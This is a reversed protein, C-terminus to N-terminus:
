FPVEVQGGKTAQVEVVVPRCPKVIDGFEDEEQLLHGKVRVLAGPELVVGDKNEAGPGVILEFLAEKAERGEEENRLKLTLKAEVLDEYDVVEGLLIFVARRHKHNDKEPDWPEFSYFNFNTKVAGPEGYQSMGGTLKVLSGPRVADMWAKYGKEGWLRGFARVNGYAPYRCDMVVEIFPKGGKETTKKTFERVEGWVHARNFHKPTTTERTM